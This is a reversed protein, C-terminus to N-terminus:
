EKIVYWNPSPENLKLWNFDDVKRWNNIDRALGAREFDNEITEYDYAYSAFGVDECDEIIAKSTVHIHFKTAVTTHIRLQQCALEFRSDFCETVFVSRNVPGCYIQTNIVKNIRMTSPSGKIYITCDVINSVNIDKGNCESDLVSFTEGSRNTLGVVNRHSHLSVSSKADEETQPSKSSAPTKTTLKQRSKFAFKKKPLLEDRRESIDNRLEKLIEQARRMDYGPLFSLSDSAFKQLNVVKQSIADFVKAAEMRPTTESLQNLQTLIERKEKNFTETFAESSENSEEKEKLRATRRAEFQELRDKHKRLLMEHFEKNKAPKDM